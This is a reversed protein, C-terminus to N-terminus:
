TTFAKVGTGVDNELLCKVDDSTYSLQQDALVCEVALDRTHASRFTVRKGNLQPENKNQTYKYADTNNGKEPFNVNKQVDIKSFRKFKMKKVRDYEKGGRKRYDELAKSSRISRKGFARMSEIHTKATFELIARFDDETIKRGQYILQIPMM